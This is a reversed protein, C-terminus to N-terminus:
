SCKIYPTQTGTTAIQIADEGADNIYWQPEFRIGTYQYGAQVATNWQNTVDVYVWADNWDTWSTANVRYFNPAFASREYDSAVPGSSTVSLMSLNFTTWGSGITGYHYFALTKTMNVPCSLSATDFIAIGRYQDDYSGSIRDDGVLMYWGQGGVGNGLGDLPDTTDYVHAPYSNLM